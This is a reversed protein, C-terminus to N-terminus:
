GADHKQGSGGKPEPHRDEYELLIRYQDALGLWFERIAPPSHEAKVMCKSFSRSYQDHKSLM